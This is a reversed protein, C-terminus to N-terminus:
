NDREEFDEGSRDQIRKIIVYVLAAFILIGAIPPLLGFVWIFSM